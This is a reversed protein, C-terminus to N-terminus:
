GFLAACMHNWPSSLLPTSSLNNPLPFPFSFGHHRHCLSAGPSPQPACVFGAFSCCVLLVLLLLLGHPGAFTHPAFFSTLCPIFMLPFVCSSFAGSRPHLEPSYTLIDLHNAHLLSTCSTSLSSVFVIVGPWQVISPFKICVRSFNFGM